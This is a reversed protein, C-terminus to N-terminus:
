YFAYISFPHAINLTTASTQISEYTSEGLHQLIIDQGVLARYLGDVFGPIFQHGGACPLFGASQLTFQIVEALAPLANQFLCLLPPLEQVTGEKLDTFKGHAWLCGDQVRVNVCVCICVCVCAYVACMCYVACVSSAFWSSDSLM